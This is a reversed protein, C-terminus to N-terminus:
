AEGGAEGEDGDADEGDDPIHEVSVVKEDKGTRFVIVGQTARGAVRIGGVPCRILQGGNTVLMIQDSESVPFSAILAGNRQNVAMAVIGKGGRGTVRYEYSSTRKGYGHESVTLVMEERASLEAYREQSLTVATGEAGEAAEADQPADADPAGDAEGDVARRMRLYAAREEPSTDVHKLIAMSILSDGNALNIGRVGTSDRGKFVRVDDVTFRICQGNASTLLVDDDPSCMEVGVIAEGANAEDFKM